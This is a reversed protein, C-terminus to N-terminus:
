GQGKRVYRLVVNGSALAKAERLDLSLDKTLGGLLPRGGGLFIPSVVFHYDDILGHDTLQSVISGSGFVIMDKGPLRKMAEIEEPDLMQLLRSNKWNLDHLTRSFVLKPTDNLFTAQARVAESRQGKAHPSPATPSDDLARPWFSAFMEYTRRGFLITDVGPMGEAGAQNVEEDQVVWGLGGGPGAFCGDAAVHNFMLIRRM